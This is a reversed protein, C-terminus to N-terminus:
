IKKLYFYKSLKSDNDKRVFELEYGLKKYFEPAQILIAIIQEYHEIEVFSLNRGKRDKLWKQAPMYGGIYCNWAEEPVNGFYQGDNIYVRNDKYKITEVVNSGVAPYTVSTALKKIMLHLDVLEKGFPVLREFDEKTPIPIRPYDVKIFDSYRHLYSESHMAILKSIRNDFYFGNDSQELFSQKM